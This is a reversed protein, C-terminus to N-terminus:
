NENLKQEFGKPAKFIFLRPDLKVGSEIKSLSVETVNGTGDTVRWKELRLPSESFLMRLDGAERNKTQAFTIVLKNTSPRKLSLITIDGSFKIKKRLLFDALTSGIPANSYNKVGNDWYHILLGDAVIYDGNPQDYEFRLRGPRSLYFNGTQTAGDQSLQSFRAKMTTLGNLYNEINKILVAEEGATISQAHACNPATMFLVVLALKACLSTAFLWPSFKQMHQQVPKIEARLSQLLNKM